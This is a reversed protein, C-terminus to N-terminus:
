LGTLRMPRARTRFTMWVDTGYTEMVSDSAASMWGGAMGIRGDSTTNDPYLYVEGPLTPCAVLTTHSTIEGDSGHLTLDLM